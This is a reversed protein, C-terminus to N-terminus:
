RSAPLVEAMSWVSWPWKVRASCTRTLSNEEIV